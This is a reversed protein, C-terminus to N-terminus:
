KFSPLTNSFRSGGGVYLSSGQGYTHSDIHYGKVLKGQTPVQVQNNMASKSTVFVPFSLLQGKAPSLSSLSTCGRRPACSGLPSSQSLCRQTLRWPTVSLIARHQMVKTRYVTRWTISQHFTPECYPEKVCTFQYFSKNFKSDHCTQTCSVLIYNNKTSEGEKGM